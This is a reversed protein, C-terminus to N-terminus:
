VWGARPYKQDLARAESAICRGDTAFLMARTSTTGEDIVLILDNADNPM